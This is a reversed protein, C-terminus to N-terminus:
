TADARCAALTPAVALDLPMARGWSWIDAAARAAPCAPAAGTPALPSTNYASLSRTARQFIIWRRICSRLQHTPFAHTSKSFPTLDKSGCTCSATDKPGHLRISHRAHGLATTLTVGYRNSGVRESAHDSRVWRTEQMRGSGISSRPTIRRRFISS